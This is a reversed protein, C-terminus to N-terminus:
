TPSTSILGHTVCKLTSFSPESLSIMTNEIYRYALLSLVKLFGPLPRNSLVDHMFLQKVHTAFRGCGM